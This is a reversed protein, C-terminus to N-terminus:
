YEMAELGDEYFESLNNPSLDHEQGDDDTWEGQLSISSLCHGAKEMEEALLFLRNEVTSSLGEVVEITKRNKPDNDALQWSATIIYQNM